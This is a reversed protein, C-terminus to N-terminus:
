PIARRKKAAYSSVKLFSAISSRFDRMEESPFYKSLLIFYVTMGGPVLIVLAFPHNVHIPNLGFHKVGTLVVAMCASCLSAPLLSRLFAGTKLNILRNVFYQGIFLVPISVTIYAVILGTLGWRVGVFFASLTAATTFLGIKLILDSRGQSLIITGGTTGISQLAGVICLLQLPFIAPEWRGGYFTLVFERAVIMLGTMMPFTVISITRVVKTYAARVRDKEEQISSFTPFLVRGVSWSVLQLPKLMLNYAVSYYGLTVAGLYKGVILNDFNRSFYNLMNFGLLSSSFPFLEHFSRKRFRFKPIWRATKWYVPILIAQAVLKGLVLSWVGFNALALAISAGGSLIQNLVGLVGIKKFELNKTLISNHISMLPSLVFGISSVMIVPKLISKGYFSAIFPSVAVISLAIAVGAVFSILFSTALHDEDIRKKQIIASGMGLDQFLTIVGVVVGSIAVIGFDEPILLRALVITVIFHAAQVSVNSAASWFSGSIVQDKLAV